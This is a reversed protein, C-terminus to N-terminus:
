PELVVDCVGVTHRGDFYVSRITARTGDLRSVVVVGEDLPLQEVLGNDPNLQMPALYRWEAAPVETESATLVIVYERTNVVYMEIESRISTEAADTEDGGAWVIIDWSPGGVGFAAALIRDASAIDNALAAAETPSIPLM